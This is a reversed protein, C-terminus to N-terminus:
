RVARRRPPATAERLVPVRGGGPAGDGIAHSATAKIRQELEVPTLTPDAELMRAAIGAVYPAAYSTGSAVDQITGHGQDLTGRYHDHASVSACLISEAPALVDIAAGGCSGSWFGNRRDVGGVTILGDLSAGAAAPYYLVDNQATCQGSNGAAAVFLFRKGGVGNIMQKMKRELEPWFADTAAFGSSASMNVIATHFPKTAAHQVIDDLARLWVVALPTSTDRIASVRVSVISAGPAIGANRGAVVSAVATGHAFIGVTVDDWCPHTASDDPCNAPPASSSLETIPDLGAIVSSTGDDRRLEDHSAEIGVDIVYVVAGKGSTVRSAHDDRAGDSLDLNWLVNDAFGDGCGLLQKDTAHGVVVPITACHTSTTTLTAALFAAAIM